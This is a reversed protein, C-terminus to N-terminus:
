GTAMNTSWNHGKSYFDGPMRYILGLPASVAQEADDSMRSEAGSYNTELVNIPIHGLFSTLGAHLTDQAFIINTRRDSAPASRSRRKSALQASDSLSLYKRRM